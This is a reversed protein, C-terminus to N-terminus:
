PVRSIDQTDGEVPQPYCYTRKRTFEGLHFGQNRVAIGCHSSISRLRAFKRTPRSRTNSPNKSAGRELFGNKWRSLQHRVPKRFPFAWHYFLNQEAYGYDQGTGNTDYGGPLQARRSFSEGHAM